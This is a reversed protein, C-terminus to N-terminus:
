HEDDMPYLSSLPIRVLLSTGRGEQSCIDLKAGMMMARERMGLLGLTKKIRVKELDFGKGDDAIKLVLHDQDPYFSIRVQKASAYRAVNTLSEQCIRFLGITMSSPFDLEGVSSDFSTRIGTRKEFEQSQWEIAALLGLDDLISPHLNTALKRVTKITDDLLHFAAGIKQKAQADKETPVRKSIWSLDMKLGTLQQGLEDHIERAIASREEERVDQLHSALRRIEEYSRKL